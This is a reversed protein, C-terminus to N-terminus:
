VLGVLLAAVECLDALDAFLVVQAVGLLQGSWGERSCRSVDGLGEEGGGLVDGSSEL